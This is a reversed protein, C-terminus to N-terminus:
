NSFPKVFSDQIDASGRVVDSRAVVNAARYGARARVGLRWFILPGLGAGTVSHV